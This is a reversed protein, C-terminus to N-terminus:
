LDVPIRGAILRGMDIHTALRNGVALYESVALYHVVDSFTLDRDTPWRAFSQEARMLVSEAGELNAGTRAMVVKLYIERRRLGPQSARVHNYLDLLERSVQAAHRKERGHFLSLM